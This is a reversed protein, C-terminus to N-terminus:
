VTLAQSTRQEILAAVEELSRKHDRLDVFYKAMLDYRKLMLLFWLAQYDLTHFVMADQDRYQNLNKQFDAPMESWHRGPSIHHGIHYGDNFCRKNYLSNIVTISNKFPNDSDKLELFAHQTWNGAMMGFWCIATPIIFVILTAMPNAILAFFIFAYFTFFGLVTKLALSKQDKKWFYRFLDVPTLMVFAAFYLLWHFFSNRRFPLTTSLDM